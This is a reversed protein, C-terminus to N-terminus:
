RAHSGVDHRSLWKLLYEFFVTPEWFIPWKSHCYKIIIFMGAKQLLGKLVLNTM